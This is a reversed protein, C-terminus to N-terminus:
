GYVLIVSIMSTFLHYLEFVVNISQKKYINQQQM